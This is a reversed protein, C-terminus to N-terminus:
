YSNISFKSLNFNLVQSSPSLNGTLNNIGLYLEELKSLNGIGLPISGTFQNFSLSLTRLEQSHSLSSPIKGKLQNWSLSIVELSPLNCCMSSPLTGSLNNSPLDFIRLSSINFLAEPIEGTLSNILTM